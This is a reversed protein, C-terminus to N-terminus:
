NLITCNPISANKTLRPTLRLVNQPTLKLILSLMGDPLKTGDWPLKVSGMWFSSDFLNPLNFEELIDKPIPDIDRSLIKLALIVCTETGYCFRTADAHSMIIVFHDGFGDDRLAHTLDKPKLYRKEGKHYQSPVGYEHVNITFSITFPSKSGIFFPSKQALHYLPVKMPVLNSPPVPGPRSM